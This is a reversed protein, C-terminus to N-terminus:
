WPLSGKSHTGLCRYGFSSVKVFMITMIILRKVVIVFDSVASKASDWKFLRTFFPPESGEMVIYIPAERSLKELLFDHELFSQQIHSAFTLFMRPIKSM